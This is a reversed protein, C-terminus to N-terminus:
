LMENKEVIKILVLVENMVPYVHFLHYLPPKYWSTTMSCTCTSLIIKLGKGSQSVELNALTNLHMVTEEWPGKISIMKEVSKNMILVM